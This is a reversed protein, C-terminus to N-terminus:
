WAGVWAGLIWACLWCLIAPPTAVLVGVLLRAETVTIDEADFETM